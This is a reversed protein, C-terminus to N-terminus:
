KKRVQSKFRSKNVSRMLPTIYNRRFANQNRPYYDKGNRVPIFDAGNLRMLYEQTFNFETDPIMRRGAAAYIHEM